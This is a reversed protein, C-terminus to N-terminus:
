TPDEGAEFYGEALGHMLGRDWGKVAECLEDAFHDGRWTHDIDGSLVAVKPNGRTTRDWDPEGDDGHEPFIVATMPSVGDYERLVSATPTFEVAYFPEGGVGNRHYRVNTVKKVLRTM